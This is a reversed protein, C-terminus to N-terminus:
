IRSRLNSAFLIWMRASKVARCVLKPLMLFFFMREVSAEITDMLLLLCWEKRFPSCVYNIVVVYNRQYFVCVDDM